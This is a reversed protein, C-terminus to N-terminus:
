KYPSALYEFKNKRPVLQYKNVWVYMDYCYLFFSTFFYTYDCVYYIDYLIYDYVCFFFVDCVYIYSIIILLSKTNVFLLEGYWILIKNSRFYLKRVKCLKGIILVIYEVLVWKTREKCGQNKLLYVLKQSNTFIWRLDYVWIAYKEIQHLLHCYFPGRM